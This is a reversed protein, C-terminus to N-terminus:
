PQKPKPTYPATLRGKSKVLARALELLSSYRYADHDPWGSVQEHLPSNHAEIWVARLGAEVSPFIDSKLSDGVMIAEDPKLGLKALVEVYSSKEKKPVIFIGKFKNKFPINSFRNQQVDQDGITVIYLPYHEALLEVAEPVGPKVPAAVTFIDETFSRVAKVMEEDADPVFHKLVAEFSAPMRKKTYGYVEFLEKDIKNFAEKAEAQSVGFNRLYGYLLFEANEYLVNNEVLLDDMDLLIAKIM